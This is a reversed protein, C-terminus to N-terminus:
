AEGVVYPLEWALSHVRAKTAVQAAVAIVRQVRTPVGTIKKKKESKLVM